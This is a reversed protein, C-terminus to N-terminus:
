DPQREEGEGEPAAVRKARPLRGVRRNIADLTARVVAEPINNKVLTAGVLLEQQRRQAFYSCTVLAVESDGLKVVGADEFTFPLQAEVVQNVALLTAEAALRFSQLRGYTGRVEGIYLAEPDNEQALAVRVKMQGRSLDSVVDVNQLRLRPPPVTPDLGVLQAISIKRHDLQLGWEAQAASQIDRVMQKPHRETTAVVHVEEVAGWESTAVKCSVVGAVKMILAELDELNVRSAADTAEKKGM